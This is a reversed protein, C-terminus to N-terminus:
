IPKLCYRYCRLIVQIFLPLAFILGHPIYEEYGLLKLVSRQLLIISMWITAGGCENGFLILTDNGLIEWMKSVM